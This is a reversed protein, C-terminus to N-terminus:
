SGEKQNSGRIGQPADDAATGEDDGEIKGAACEALGAGYEALARRIESNTAKGGEALAAAIRGSAPGERRIHKNKKRKPKEVRRGKGDALLSYDGDTAVVIFRKGADRGNLSSVVDATAIKM